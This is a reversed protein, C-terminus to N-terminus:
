RRSAPGSTAFGACSAVLGEAARPNSAWHAHVYSGLVNGGGYGGGYGEPIVDGARRRRVRYTGPAGGQLDSYRFQHGRFRLGAPGLISPADTEVEVYGLAQLRDHMVATGPVLGLMPHRAGDTTAIADSLYMLGGCEAYVPAGAQALSRIAERMAGNAALEAAHAEPYGGGIYLGDVAPLARDAVPSFHVLEAGLAELRRLNDPYYFHFADDWALGIRCRRPAPRAGIGIAAAAAVAPVVVPPASRAIALLGDLDLSEAVRDAWAAILADTAPDAETMAAATRLGLHREPFGLGEARVLGGVLPVASMARRLLDTHGTSGVRNAIAGAVRVERDFGALGDVVAALTRAMGSADVVAIVPAALWAAIEATSGERGVPSAGDHLGMVGEIIALDAGAAEAAFTAVAADEGMMWGDLNHSPRGAARQHYTPDLYDPGCKFPAVTLGRRRLAAIIGVVITTKGVGSGTGAVVLRPIALSAM